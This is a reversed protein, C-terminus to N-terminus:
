GNKGNKMFQVRNLSGMEGLRGKIKHWNKKKKQLFSNINYILIECIKELHLTHLLFLIYM